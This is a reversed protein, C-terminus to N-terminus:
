GNLKITSGVVNVDGGAEIGVNAGAKIITGGDSNLAHTGSTSTLTGSKIAILNGLLSVSAGAGNDLLIMGASMRLSAGAVNLWLESANVQFQGAQTIYMNTSNFVHNADATSDYNAQTHVTYNGKVDVDRTGGVSLADNAGVTTSRNVGITNTQNNGVDTSQDRGITNSQNGGISNSEDGGVSETHNRLIVENQDRQAHIYIEEDGAADEFRLENFGDASSGDEGVSDSKITRKTTIRDMYPPPNQANYLRGVVVPRDPDGGDFAVLVEHGVRPVYLAGFSPGAWYQSVRVWKSSPTGDSPRQDWPFRLRVRGFEDNNLEPPPADTAVEEATVRATQMGVIRPKATERTPRYRLEAPVIDFRNEYFPGSRPPEAGFGWPEQALATAEPSLESAYTEVGVLLQEGDDRLGEADVAAFRYGPELTRVTSSGRALAREINFRELLFKAPAAGPASPEDEDRAPFEFHALDEVPGQTAELRTLSKRWAYDRM